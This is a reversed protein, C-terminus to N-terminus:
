VEKLSDMEKLIEKLMLTPVKLYEEFIDFFIPKDIDNFKMEVGGMFDDVWGQALCIFGQKEDCWFVVSSKEEVEYEPDYPKRKEFEFAGNAYQQIFEYGKLTPIKIEKENNKVANNLKEMTYIFWEIEEYTFKTGVNFTRKYGANEEKEDLTYCEFWVINSNIMLRCRNNWFKCEWRHYKKAKNIRRFGFKKLGEGKQVKGDFYEPHWIAGYYLPNNVRFKEKKAM